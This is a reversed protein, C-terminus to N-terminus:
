WSYQITQFLRALDLDGKKFTRVSGDLFLVNTVQDPHRYDIARIDTGPTGLPMPSPPPTSDSVWTFISNWIVGYDVCNSDDEYGYAEVVAVCQSANAFKDITPYEASSGLIRVNANYQGYGKGPLTDIWLKSMGPYSLIPAGSTSPPIVQGGGTGILSTDPPAFDSTQVRFGDNNDGQGGGLRSHPYSQYSADFRGDGVIFQNVLTKWDAWSDACILMEANDQPFTGSQEDDPHGAHRIPMFGGFAATYFRIALGIQKLGNACKVRNATSQARGLTPILIAALIAIIAVVVLLEILTFGRSRM